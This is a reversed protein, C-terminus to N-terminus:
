EKRVISFLKPKDHLLTAMYFLSRGDIKFMRNEPDPSSVAMNKRRKRQNIKTRKRKNGSEISGAKGQEKSAPM